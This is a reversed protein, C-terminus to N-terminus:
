RVTHGWWIVKGIFRLREDLEEGMFIEPHYNYANESYLILTINDPREVWKVRTQGDVDVVYISSRRMGPQTRPAVPPNRRKTDILLVDGDSIMPVMSDGRARLMAADQPAVGQRKLWDRRFVYDQVVAHPDAEEGPGASASVDHYSVTAYDEGGIITHHVSNTERPPGVYFELGLAACIEKVRSLTPGSKKSSRLVNRIADPPLGAEVEVAYARKGLAELRDRVADEFSKEDSKM